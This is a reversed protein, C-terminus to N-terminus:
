RPVISSKVVFTESAMSNWPIGVHAIVETGARVGISAPNGTAEDGVGVTLLYVGAPVSTAGVPVAEVKM